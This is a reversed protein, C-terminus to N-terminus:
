FLVYKLLDILHLINVYRGVSEYLDQISLKGIRLFAGTFTVM